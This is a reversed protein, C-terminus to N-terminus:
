AINTIKNNEIPFGICQTGMNYSVGTYLIYPHQERTGNMAEVAGGPATIWSPLPCQAM